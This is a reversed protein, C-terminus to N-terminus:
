YTAGRPVILEKFDEEPMYEVDNIYVAVLYAKEGTVKNVKEYYQYSKGDRGEVMDYDGDDWDKGNVNVKRM